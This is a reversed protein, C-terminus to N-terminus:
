VKRRWVEVYAELDDGSVDIDEGVKEFENLNPIFHTDAEPFTSKVRTIHVEDIMDWFQIYVTSGGVLWGTHNKFPKKLLELTAKMYPKNMYVCNESINEYGIKSLYPVRSSLISNRREPFGDRFPLGKFTTNGMFVECGLTMKKFYELDKPLRRRWPMDGDQGIEGNEGVALIAKIM